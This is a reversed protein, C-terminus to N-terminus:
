DGMANLRDLEGAGAISTVGTVTALVPAISM